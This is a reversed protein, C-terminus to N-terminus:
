PGPKGNLQSAEGRSDRTYVTSLNTGVAGATAAAECHTILGCRVDAHRRCILLLEVKSWLDYPFSNWDRAKTMAKVGAAQDWLTTPRIEPVTASVELATTEPAVIVM